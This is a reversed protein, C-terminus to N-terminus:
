ADVENVAIASNAHMSAVHIARVALTQEASEPTLDVVAQAYARAAARLKDYREAQDGRPAHYTFLADLDLYAM